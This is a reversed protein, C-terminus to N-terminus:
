KKSSKKLPSSSVALLEDRKVAWGLIVKQASRSIALAGAPVDKTITSGSGIYAGKGITVPSVLQSDSGVFVNDKIHTKHKKVGDYNCIITGAGINVDKGIVADGLYSLHGAKVGPGLTANKVEVFNGIRAAKKIRTGPRLRAFPGAQVEDALVSSEVVSHSKIVADRGIRSDTIKVGEEIVSGAGVTTAGSLHVNPYIVVDEGIKVGNDIYATSPDTFTVGAFMHEENIRERMFMNARALEFRNNVGMVEESDLLTFAKVRKGQAYALTILDPLYYEKQKNKTDLKKLNTKLFAMDILYIGTNVECISRQSPALDKDEVVGCVRDHGDRVVRGYGAPDDMLVSIVSIVPHEVARGKVGKTSRRHIRLLARLTNKTILPVDGSLILVEGKSGSLSPMASMVAHGTGLQPSQECFGLDKDPLAERVQESGHGVVIVTSEVRLDKLAQVPYFIMPKGSVKHLVKPLKSKMRTGKGAALVIAAINKM